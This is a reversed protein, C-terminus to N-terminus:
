EATPVKRLAVTELSQARVPPTCNGPLSAAFAPLSADLDGSLDVGLQELAPQANAILRHSPILPANM